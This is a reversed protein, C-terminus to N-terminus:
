RLRPTKNTIRPTQKQKRRPRDAERAETAGVFYQVYGGHKKMSENAAARTNHTSVEVGNKIVMFRGM